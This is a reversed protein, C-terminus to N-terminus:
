VCIKRIEGIRLIVDYIRIEMSFITGGYNDVIFITIFYRELSIGREETAIIEVVQIPIGRPLYHGNEASQCYSFHM